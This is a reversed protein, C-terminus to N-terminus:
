KEVASTREMLQYSQTTDNYKFKYINEFTRTKTQSDAGDYNENIDYVETADVTGSKGSADMKYSNVVASDYKEYFNGNSKYYSNINDMQQKDLKSGPYMYSQLRGANGSTLADALSSAYGVIMDNIDNQRQEPTEGQKSYDFSIVTDNDSLNASFSKIKEGNYNIVAYISAGAAVPGITDGSNVPKKTDKGNVYIENNDYNSNVKLYLGKLAEATEDQKKDSIFDVKTKNDMEGFDGYAKGEVNYLGPIYPGFQKSFNDSDVKTIKNDNILIDAGKVNSTLTLFVPKFAIKYKPFFILTRGVKTIYLNSSQNEVGGNKLNAAQNNLDNITSSLQSPTNKFSKLLPNVTDSKLNFRGDTTYLIKSLATTDSKNVASQFSVVTRQPSSITKGIFIFVIIFACTTIIGILMKSNLVSKINEIKNEFQETKEESNDEELDEEPNDELDESKDEEKVNNSKTKLDYGCNHCFGSDEKVSAGCKPCFNM